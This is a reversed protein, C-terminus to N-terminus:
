LDFSNCISLTGNISIVGYSIYNGVMQKLQAINDMKRSITMLTKSFDIADELSYKSFDIDASEFEIKNSDDTEISTRLLLKNIWVSHGIAHYNFVTTNDIGCNIRSLKGQDFLLLVPIRRTSEDIDDIGVIYFSLNQGEGMFAEMETSFSNAFDITKQFTKGKLKNLIVEVYFAYPMGKVFGNGHINL